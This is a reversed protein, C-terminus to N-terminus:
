RARQDIRQDGMAALAEGADAPDPPGADDVTEVLVRGAKHHDGLRIRRMLAEGSSEGVM